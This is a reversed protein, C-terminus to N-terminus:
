AMSARCPCPFDFTGDGSKTALDHMIFHFSRIYQMAVLELLLSCQM